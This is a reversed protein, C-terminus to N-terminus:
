GCQWVQRAAPIALNEEIYRTLVARDEEGCLGTLTVRYPYPGSGTDRTEVDAELTAGLQGAKDLIYAAAQESIIRAQLERNRVEVGTQLTEAELRLSALQRAIADYDLQTVPSLAALLVLLGCGLQACRRVAGEPLLALVAASLLAAASLSFLYSRM